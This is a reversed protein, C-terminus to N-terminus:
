LGEDFLGELAVGDAEVEDEEVEFGDLGPHQSFDLGVGDYAL